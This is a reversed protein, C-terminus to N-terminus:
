CYIQSEYLELIKENIFHYDSETPIVETFVVAVTPEFYHDSIVLDVTDSITPSFVVPVPSYCTVQKEIMKKQSLSLSSFVCIKIKKKSVLLSDRILMYYFYNAAATRPFEQHSKLYDGFQIAKELFYHSEGKLEKHIQATKLNHVSSCSLLDLKFFYYNLNILLYFYVQAPIEVQFFSCFETIWRNSLEENQNRQRLEKGTVSVFMDLSLINMTQIYGVFFDLESKRPQGTATQRCTDLMKTYFQVLDKSALQRDDYDFIPVKETLLHRRNLRVLSIFTFLKLKQLMPYPITRLTQVVSEGVLTMDIQNTRGYSEDFGYASAYLEFYFHRIQKENGIFYHPSSLALEIHYEYMIKKLVKIKRYMTSTSVFHEISFELINTFTEELLQQCLKFLLSDRLLQQKLRTMSFTADLSVLLSEKILTLHIGNKNLGLQSFDHITRIVGRMDVKLSKSLSKVSYNKTQSGM